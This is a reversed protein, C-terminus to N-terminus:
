HVDRRKEEDETGPATFFMELMEVYEEWSPYRSDSPSVTGVTGMVASRPLDLCTRREEPGTLLEAVLQGFLTGFTDGVRLGCEDEAGIRYCISLRSAKPSKEQAPGVESRQRRSHAVVARLDLLPLLHSFSSLQTM